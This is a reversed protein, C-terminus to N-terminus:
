VTSRIEPLCEQLSSIARRLRMRMLGGMPRAARDGYGRTKVRPVLKLAPIGCGQLPSVEANRRTYVRRFVVGVPQVLVIDQDSVCENGARPVAREFGTRRVPGWSIPFGDSLAALGPVLRLRTEMGLSLNGEGSAIQFQLGSRSVKM